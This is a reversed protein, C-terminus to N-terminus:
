IHITRRHRRLLGPGEKFRGVSASSSNTRATTWSSTDRLQYDTPRVTGLLGASTLGAPSSAWTSPPARTMTAQPPTFLRNLRFGLSGKCGAPIIHSGNRNYNLGNTLLTPAPDCVLTAARASRGPKGFVDSDPVNIAAGNRRVTLRRSRSPFGTDLSRSSTASSITSAALKRACRRQPTTAVRSHIALPPLPSFTRASFCSHAQISCRPPFLTTRFHSCLPMERRTTQAPAM